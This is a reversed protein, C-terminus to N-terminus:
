VAKSIMSKDFHVGNNEEKIHEQNYTVGSILTHDGIHWTKQGELGDMSLDHGYSSATSGTGFGSDSTERTAIHVCLLALTLVSIIPLVM